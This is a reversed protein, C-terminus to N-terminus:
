ALGLKALEAALDTEPAFVIGAMGLRRAGEVNAALDDIFVTRGPLVALSDMARRYIAPDPKMVGAEFSLAYADFFLIEPFRGRIFAWRREDTNSLLAMRRGPKLRRLTDIAPLNPFFVDNYAAYFEEFTARAGLLGCAHEYFERPSVRGCEFRTLLDLNDHTIRRIEEVPRSTYATMRRFFVANDFFLLVNGLDSVVADIM